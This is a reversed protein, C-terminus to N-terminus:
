RREISGFRNRALELDDPTDIDWLVEPDGVEVYVTENRLCFEALSHVTDDELLRRISFRSFLVPHGPRGDFRPVILTGETDLLKAIVRAPVFPCDGPLFLVRETGTKRLGAKLSSLMGSEYEPNFVTIIEERQPIFERVHQAHYGVVVFIRACFPSLSDITLQVLPKGGLDMIMKYAPYMRSSKGAALILGEIKDM